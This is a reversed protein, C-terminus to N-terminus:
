RVIGSTTLTWLIFAVAAIGVLVTVVQGLTKM